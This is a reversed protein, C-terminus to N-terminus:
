FQLNLQFDDDTGDNAPLSSGGLNGDDEEDGDFISLFELRKLAENNETKSVQAYRAPTITCDSGTSATSVSRSLTRRPPGAPTKPRNTGQMVSSTSRGKSYGLTSRSAAVATARDTSSERTIAPRQAKRNLPLLCNPGSFISPPPKNTLNRAHVLTTSPKPALALASAAKRAAITPPQKPLGRAVPRKNARSMGEGGELVPALSKSQKVTKTEPVDGISWDFEDMDKRVQEDLKKFDRQRREEMERERIPVGNEDVPNFYHDYYGKLLNEPKLGEFTMVGAPLIDSEYPIDKSRPPAYEIDEEEELPNAKDVHVGLKSSELNVTGHRLPKVTTPKVQTKELKNVIEKVGAAQGTRAKANTTKNGLPARNTRPELPTVFNSKGGKGITTINENNNKPRLVSKGGLGHTANEDNLPIKLPTKPYRAGPTKPQLTRFGQSQQQQKAVAGAQHSFALNEQDKHAALM